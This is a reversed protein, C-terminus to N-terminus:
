LVYIFMKNNINYFYYETDVHSLILGQRSKKMVFDLQRINLVYIISMNTKFYKVNRVIAWNPGYQNINLHRSRNYFIYHKTGCDKYYHFCMSTRLLVIRSSTHNIGNM